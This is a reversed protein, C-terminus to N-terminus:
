ITTTHPTRHFLATEPRSPSSLLEGNDDFLCAVVSTMCNEGTWGGMCQCSYGGIQDICTSDNECPSIECDNVNGDCNDGEFGAACDCTYGQV